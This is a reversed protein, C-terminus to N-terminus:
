GRPVRRDGLLAGIRNQIGHLTAVLVEEQWMRRDIASFTEALGCTNIAERGLRFLPAPAPRAAEHTFTRRNGDPKADGRELIIWGKYSGILTSTRGPAPPVHVALAAARRYPGLKKRLARDQKRRTEAM